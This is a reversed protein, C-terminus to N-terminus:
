TKLQGACDYHIMTPKVKVGTCTFCAKFLASLFLEVDPAKIRTAILTSLKMGKIKFKKLVMAMDDNTMYVYTTQIGFEM